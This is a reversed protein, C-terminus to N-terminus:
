HPSPLRSQHGHSPALRWRLLLPLFRGDRPSQVGLQQMRDLGTGLLTLDGFLAVALTGWVGPMAHAASAGVVDDIRVMELLHVAGYSILGGVAGIFVAEAPSVAHCGATVAVLGAVCGNLTEPLLPLRQFYWVAGMASLCGACGALVTNVLITGVRHDLALTSGGNFGLWAVFLVLVGVTSTVLSHPNALPLKSDFRGLRPGIVITAALAMWGGMSHVVTSGAFDVFGLSKLWGLSEM